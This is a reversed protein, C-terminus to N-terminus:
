HVTPENNKRALYVAYDSESIGFINMKQIHERLENQLSERLSVEANAFDSELKQRKSCLANIIKERAIADEASTVPPLNSKATDADGTLFSLLSM